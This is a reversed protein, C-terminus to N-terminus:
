VQRSVEERGGRSSPGMVKKSERDRIKLTQVMDEAELCLVVLVESDLMRIHFHVCLSAAVEKYYCLNSIVDFFFFVEM